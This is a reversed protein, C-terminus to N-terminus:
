IEIESIVAVSVCESRSRCIPFWDFSVAQGQRIFLTLAASWSGSFEHNLWLWDNQVITRRNYKQGTVGRWNDGHESYYIAALWTNGSKKRLLDAGVYAWGKGVNLWVCTNVFLVSCWKETLSYKLTKTITESSFVGMRIQNFYPFGLSSGQDARISAIREQLFGVSITDV